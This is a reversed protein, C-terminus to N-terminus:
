QILLMSTKPTLAWIRWAQPKGEPHPAHVSAFNTDAGLLVQHVSLLLAFQVAM